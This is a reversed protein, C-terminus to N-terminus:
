QGEATGGHQGQNSGDLLRVADRRADPSLHSYRLTMGLTAHGLLEQVAKMPAGRMTLASAFSHRLVHWGIRRLGARRCARPLPKECQRNTLMTGDENCFVFPGRLHRHSRLVAAVDDGLPVERARGSKPPHLEGLDDAAVRVVLRGAVLDVDEWRLGRLEGLRLGTRLAVFVMPGWPSEECRTAEVLRDAEEFDLFDFNPPPQRLRKIRPCSELVEWEVAIRLIKGLIALEENITKARLGTALREAKYQEIVRPRIQDLRLGGLAPLIARKLARRKERVTRPRNNNAFYTQLCEEAFERLRPIV